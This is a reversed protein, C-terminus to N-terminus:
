FVPEVWYNSAHWNQEPFGGGYHYVGSRNGEVEDKYDWPVIPQPYSWSYAADFYYESSAYHGSPTFYSVTYEANASIPVPQAFQIYPYADGTSALEQEALLNGSRDWLHAVQPGTNDPYRKFLLGTVCGDRTSYFRMGVEVPVTDDEDHVEYGPKW